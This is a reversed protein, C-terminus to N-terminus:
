LNQIQKKKEFSMGLNFLTIDLISLLICFSHQEPFDGNNIPDDLHMPMYEGPLILTNSAFLLIENPLVLITQLM